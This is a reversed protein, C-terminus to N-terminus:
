HFCACRMRLPIVAHMLTNQSRVHLMCIEHEPAGQEEEKYRQMYRWVDASPVVKDEEAVVVLGPVHMDEAWIINKYWRYAHTYTYTHPLSSYARTSVTGMYHNTGGKYM